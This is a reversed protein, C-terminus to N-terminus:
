SIRSRLIEKGTKSRRTESVSNDLKSGSSGSKQLPSIKVKYEPDELKSQKEALKVRHEFSWCPQASIDQLAMFGGLIKATTLANSACAGGARGRAARQRGRRSGLNLPAEDAKERLEHYKSVMKDANKLTDVVYRPAIEALSKGYYMTSGSTQPYLQLIVRGFTSKGCGSEGVLGLTEGEHIELSIGDNARVYMQDNKFISRRGIPFYKKLNTINLLNAKTNPM